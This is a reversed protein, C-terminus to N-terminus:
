SAVLGRSLLSPGSIKTKIASVASKRHRRGNSGGHIEELVETPIALFVALVRPDFQRGAQFAIEQIAQSILRTTQYPRPSTMADFADAVAFIRASLPIQEGQLRRPYGTGDYREHHSLVLEAADQLFPIRSVLDHGIQAHTRMTNWEEPTLKGPKGLISDPIALKGIDHLLAGQSLSKLQTESCGMRRAIEASYECVRRSHEATQGDRLDLAAGLALLTNEYSQEASRLAARLQATRELVLHELRKQLELAEREFRRRELARRLNRLVDRAEVPKTLYDDAGDKIAQAGIHADDRTVLLLFALSPHDKRLRSLLELGDLGPMKLDCLVADVHAGSLVGLAQEGSSVFSSRFGALKLRLSLVQGLAVEDDVILVTPKKSSEAVPLKRIGTCDPFQIRESAVCNM